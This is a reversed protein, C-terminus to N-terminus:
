RRTGRGGGMPMMPNRAAGGSGGPRNAGAVAAPTAIKDGERLDGSVVESIVSDTVGLRIPVRVLREGQLKYVASGGSRQPQQQGAEDAPRFRLASNPV